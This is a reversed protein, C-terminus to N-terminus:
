LMMGVEQGALHGMISGMVRIGVWRQCPHDTCDILYIVPIPKRHKRQAIRTQIRRREMPDSIKTWDEGTDVLSDSASSQQNKFRTKSVQTNAVYFNQHSSM